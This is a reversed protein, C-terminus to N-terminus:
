LASIYYFSVTIVAGTMDVLKEAYNGSEDAILDRQM